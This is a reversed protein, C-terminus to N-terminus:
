RAPEHIAEEAQPAPTPVIVDVYISPTVVVNPDIDGLPVVNHVLAITHRAAMAMIPNFNRGSGRYVLNGWRDATWAEILAVDGHLAHEMVYERGGFVRHEKGRALETGVSTPTFFAPVGAGAARIRESLTGQPVIEIELKGAAYLEEAIGSGRPFSCVLKDVKGTALLVPLGGDRGFGANNAVVTLHRAESRALAFILADPQGVTGFGGVLVVDGDRVKGVAQMVDDTQKDIM